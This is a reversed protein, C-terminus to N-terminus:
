DDDSGKPQAEDPDSADDPSPKTAAEEDSHDEEIVGLEYSEVFLDLPMVYLITATEGEAVHDTFEIADCWLDGESTLFHDPEVRTVKYNDGEYNYISGVEPVGGAPLQTAETM